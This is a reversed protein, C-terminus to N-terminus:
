RIKKNKEPAAGIVDLWNETTSPLDGPVVPKWFTSNATAQLSLPQIFDESPGHGPWFRGCRNAWRWEHPM